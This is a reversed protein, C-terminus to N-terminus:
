QVVPDTATAAAGQRDAYRIVYSEDMFYSDRAPKGYEAPTISASFGKGGNTVTLELRYGAGPEFDSSIMNTQRLEELTAFRENEAYYTAEASGIWRLKGVAESQASAAKAKTLSKVFSAVLSKWADRVPLDYQAYVGTADKQATTLVGNPFPNGFDVQFGPTAEKAVEKAITAFVSPALYSAAITNQPISGWTAYSASTALSSNLVHADVCREVTATPGILMFGDMFAWAVDKAVMVEVGNRDTSRVADTPAGVLAALQQIARKVTEPSRVEALLVVEPGTSAAIAEEQAPEDEVKMDGPGVDGSPAQPPATMDPAMRTGVISSVKMGVAVENGFATLLDDRLRM